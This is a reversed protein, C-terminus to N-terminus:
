KRAYKVSCGYPRTEASEVREGTALDALARAVYNVLRQGEDLDGLPANDLAGRYILVGTEDILYVHPTTRAAYLRGVRGTEDILIPYRMSYAARTERNKEIGHGQKGPGGSNIALWVLGRDVYSNGMETLPGRTHAYRVFPCEPNFWELVVKKGRFSSLRVQNGDQDELTFDPALQGIAAAQGTQAAAESVAAGSWVFCLAVVFGPFFVSIVGPGKRLNSEKREISM